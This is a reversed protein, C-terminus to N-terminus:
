LGLVVILFVFIVFINNDGAKKSHMTQSAHHRTGDENSMPLQPHMLENLKLSIM